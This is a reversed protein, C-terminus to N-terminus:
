SIIQRRRKFDYKVNNFISEIIRDLFKQGSPRIEDSYHSTIVFGIKYKKM